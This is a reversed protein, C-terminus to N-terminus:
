GFATLIKKRFIEANLPVTFNKTLIGLWSIASAVDNFTASGKEFYALAGKQYAKLSVNVKDQSSVYLVHAEPNEKRLNDLIDLGYQKELHHDLIIVDPKKSIAKMFNRETKFHKVKSFTKQLNKEMCRGFYVDDDLIFVSINQM